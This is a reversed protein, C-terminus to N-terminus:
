LPTGSGDPRRKDFTRRHLLIEHLASHTEFVARRWVLHDTFGAGVEHPALQDSEASQNEAAQETVVSRNSCNLALWQCAVRCGRLRLLISALLRM